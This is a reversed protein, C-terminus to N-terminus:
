SGAADEILRYRGRALKVVRGNRSLQALARYTTESALGISDAFTAIDEVLLGDELAAVIREDAARISLLEVRRRCVQIQAAFREAMSRIFDIDTNMLRTVAGRQCEIVLSASSASATCHYKDSFLSAEAFTDGARARHIVLNAGSSTTRKLDLTGFVLFYLGATQDNQLFLTEGRELTRQVCFKQDLTNLPDPLEQLSM